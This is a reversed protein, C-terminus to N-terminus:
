WAEFSALQGRSAQREMGDQDLGRSALRRAGPEWKGCPLAFHLGAPDLADILWCFRAQDQDSDLLWRQGFSCYVRDFGPAAPAGEAAVALSLFGHGRFAEM